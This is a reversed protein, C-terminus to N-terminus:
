RDVEPSYIQETLWLSDVDADELREALGTFEAPGSGPPPAV